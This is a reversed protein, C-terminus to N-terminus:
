DNSGGFIKKDTIQSRHSELWEIFRELMCKLRETTREHDYTYEEQYMKATIPQGKLERWVFVTYEFSKVSDMQGSEVLCYPYVDKQWSREFKGFQYRSTTKIDFVKDKVIEDAYGYLCVKGYKTDIFAKCFHQSVAGEFYLAADRCVKVDYEFHFGNIEAYIGCVGNGDNCAVRGIEMGKKTCERSGILCDVIENFCTGKDAAESVFPVRNISDLLNREREDSMEDETKKLSGDPNENEFSNVDIVTDLLRQFSDLLSPYINYNVKCMYKM